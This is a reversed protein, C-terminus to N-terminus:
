DKHIISLFKACIKNNSHLWLFSTFCHILAKIINVKIEDKLQYYFFFLACSKRSLYSGSHSISSNTLRYLVLSKDLLYLKIGKKTLRFYMPGDEWMPIREDFYKMRKLTEAKYIASATPLFPIGNRVICSFQKEVPLTFFSYDIEKEIHNMCETDGFFDIKTFLVGIEPNENFTKVCEEIYNEKLKDDAAILKILEGNAKKCARNVNGTVGTNKEVSLCNVNVFRKKHEELWTAVVSITDDKSCDDSIILEINKYTQSYISDLTELVTESSNYTIVCISILINENM